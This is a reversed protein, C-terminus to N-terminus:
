TAGFQADNRVAHAVAIDRLSPIVLLTIVAPTRQVRILMILAFM